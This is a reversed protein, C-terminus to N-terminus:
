GAISNKSEALKPDWAMQHALLANLITLLKRMCAVMAVKFPKGAAILREFFAQIVPNCRRAALTAMYLTRRLTGRGGWVARKGKLLGSDRNYPAVGVLAAIKKRDLQGLEPLDALLATCLVPGVGPVSRLWEAQQQWHPHAQLAAQLQANLDDLEQQLWTIHAEIRARVPPQSRDRRNEEAVLMEVVQRRRDVWVQLARTAEDPVPRVQPQIVQAYHALARADLRDSKALKGTAKAFDRGQRPNIRVTPLNAVSLRVFAEQEYGGTAELVVLGVPYTRLKEILATIGSPNNDVQFVIGQPRLSVDLHAKSVDIGVFTVFTESPSATDM